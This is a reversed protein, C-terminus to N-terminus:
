LSKLTGSVSKGTSEIGQPERGQATPKSQGQSPGLVLNLASKPQVCSELLLLNACADPNAIENTFGCRYLGGSLSKLGSRM